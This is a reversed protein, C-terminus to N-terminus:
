HEDEQERDAGERRRGVAPLDAQREGVHRRHLAHHRLRRDRLPGVLVGAFPDLAPAADGVVPVVQLCRNLYVVPRANPHHLPRSESLLSHGDPSIPHSGAVVRQVGDRDGSGCAGVRRRDAGDGIDRVEVPRGDVVGPPNRQVSVVVHPAVDARGRLPGRLRDVRDRGTELEVVRRQGGDNDGEPRFRPPRM